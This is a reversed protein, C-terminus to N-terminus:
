TKVKLSYGYGGRPGVGDRRELTGQKCMKLLQSAVSELKANIRKAIVSAPLCKETVSNHHSAWAFLLLISERITQKKETRLVGGPGKGTFFENNGKVPPVKALQKRVDEIRLMQEKSMENM